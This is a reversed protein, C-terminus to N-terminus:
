GDGGTMDGAVGTNDQRCDLLGDNRGCRAPTWGARPPARPGVRSSDTAPDLISYVGVPSMKGPHTTKFPLPPWTRGGVPIVLGLRRGLGWFTTM